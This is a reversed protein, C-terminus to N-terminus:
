PAATLSDLEGRLATLDADDRAFEVLDHRHAFASRLLRRADDLEGALAHRCAMNYLIVGSDRPPLHGRMLIAAVDNAFADYRDMQDAAAAVEMLHSLGHNTGNAGIGVITDLCECLANTSSLGIAERLSEYSAEAESTVEDWSWSAREAQLRANSDDIAEDLPPDDAPYPQGEATAKLRRAEVARWAALHGRVDKASWEGFTATRDRLEPAFAAFIDREAAQTLSLMEVLDAQLTFTGVTM